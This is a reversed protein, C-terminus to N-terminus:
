GLVFSLNNQFIYRPISKTDVVPKKISNNTMKQIEQMKILTPSERELFNKGM